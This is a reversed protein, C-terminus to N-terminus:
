VRMTSAQIDMLLRHDAATAVHRVALYGSSDLGELRRGLFQHGQRIPQRSFAYGMDGHFRRSNVPLRDACETRHRTRM